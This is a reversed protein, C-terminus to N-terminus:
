LLLLLNNTEEKTEQKNISSDNIKFSNCARKYVLDDLYNRMTGYISIAGSNSNVRAENLMRNAEILINSTYIGNYHILSDSIEKSNRFTLTPPNHCKSYSDYTDYPGYPGYIYDKNSM